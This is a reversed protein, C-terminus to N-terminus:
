RDHGIRHGEGPSLTEFLLYRASSYGMLKHLQSSRVEKGSDEEEVISDYRHLHRSPEAEYSYSQGFSIGYDESYSVPDGGSLGNSVPIRIEDNLVKNKEEESPPHRAEAPTWPMSRTRARFFYRLVEHCSGCRLKHVRKTSVLFDAPLQLLKYCRYCIVFPAGGSVPRCHRKVPQPKKDNSQLNQPEQHSPSYRKMHLPHSTTSEPLRCCAKHPCLRCHENHCCIGGHHPNLCSSIPQASLPILSSSRYQKPPIKGEFHATLGLRSNDKANASRHFFDLLESKLEDVKRIIKVKDDKESYRFKVFRKTDKSKCVSPAEKESEMWNLASKFDESVFSFDRERAQVGDRSTAKGSFVSSTRKGFTRRSLELYKHPIQKRREEDTSSDGGEYAHSSSRLLFSSNMRFKGNIKNDESSSDHELSEPSEELKESSKLSNNAAPIEQDSSKKLEMRNEKELTIGKVGNNEQVTSKAKDKLSGGDSDSLKTKMGNRSDEQVNREGSSGSVKTSETLAQDQDEPLDLSSPTQKEFNEKQNGQSGSDSIHKSSGPASASSLVEGSSSRVKAQLTAGCGGCKYLTIGPIETLVKRCKPCRVLRLQPITSAM